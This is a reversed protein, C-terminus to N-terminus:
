SLPIAYATWNSMVPLTVKTETGDDPQTADKMGIQITTGPDGTIEVILTQYMSLDLGPRPYTSLAPGDTVFMACWQQASPCVMKLDGPSPPPPEPTLWNTIGGSTNIGLDLGTALSTGALVNLEPPSQGPLLVPYLAMVALAAVTIKQTRM